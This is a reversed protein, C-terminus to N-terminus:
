SKYFATHSSAVYWRTAVVCKFGAFLMAAALHVGQDPQKADGKATECASLYAFWAPKLDLSMLKSVTLMGDSLHFGSELPATPDQTGHCALHVFHASPIRTTVRDVTAGKPIPEVACDLSSTKALYELRTLEQDVNWLRRMMKSTGTDEAIALVHIHSPAVHPPKTQARLLASLTHIYSSVVYDSCTTRRHYPGDYV